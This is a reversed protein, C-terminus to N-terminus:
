QDVPDGLEYSVNVNTENSVSFQQHIVFPTILSFMAALMFARTTYKTEGFLDYSFYARHANRLFVFSTFLPTFGLAGVLLILGILSIPLLALGVLLSIFSGAAFLGALFPILPGLKERWLLWAAMSMISVISLVYAFLTFRGLWEGDRGGRFVIPDFAFCIIPLIVGFTWDFETQGKTVEVSFQRQWFPEKEVVPDDPSIYSVATSEEEDHDCFLSKPERIEELTMPTEEIEDIVGFLPRQELVEEYGFM